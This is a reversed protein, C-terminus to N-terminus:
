ATLFIWVIIIVIFVFTVSITIVGKKYFLLIQAM